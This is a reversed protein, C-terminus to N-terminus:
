ENNEVESELDIESKMVDMSLEEREKLKKWISSLEVEINTNFMKNVREIGLKRQELMQDILPHLVDDNINAEAENLSERKMNFITKIGLSQYFSGLIYQKLEILEILSKGNKNFENTRLKEYFEESLIVGIKDGKVINDFYLEASEKTIDDPATVISPIRSNIAGFKFSIDCEALLSANLEIISMLGEYLSDNLIVVCDEDIVLSKNFKLYPNAVVSITPLYYANPEGGLAGRFAYLKDNVKAITVCGTVQLILELDKKPITEPLNNYVFMEQTINLMRSIYMRKLESKSFDIESSDNFLWHNRKKVKHVDAM